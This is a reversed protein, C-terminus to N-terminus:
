VTQKSSLGKEEDDARGHTGRACRTAFTAGSLFFVVMETTEQGRRGAGCSSCGRPSHVCRTAVTFAAGPSFFVVTEPHKGGVGVGRVAHAGRLGSGGKSQNHHTVGTGLHASLQPAICGQKTATPHLVSPCLPHGCHGGRRFHCPKGAV